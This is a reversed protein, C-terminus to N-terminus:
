HQYSFFFAIINGCIEKKLRIIEKAQNSEPQPNVAEKKEPLPIQNEIIRELRSAELNEVIKFADGITQNKKTLTIFLCLLKM